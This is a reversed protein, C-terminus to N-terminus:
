KVEDEKAKQLYEALDDFGAKQALTHPYQGRVDPITLSLKAPGNLLWDCLAKHGGYAAKHIANHGQYNTYALDLGLTFLWKTTELHGALTAFHMASCGWKNIFLVDAGCSMLWECTEIHGGWAALQLPTTDDKAKAELAHSLTKVLYECVQTHGKRAAWHLATRGSKKDAIVHDAGCAVLHEVVSLAGGGAAHHLATSGFRDSTEIDKGSALLSKVESLNGSTCAALLPDIQRQPKTKVTQAAESRTPKLKKSTTLPYASRLKPLGSFVKAALDGVSKAALVLAVGDEIGSWGELLDEGHVRRLEREIAKSLLIVGISDLGPHLVTEVGVEEAMVEAVLRVIFQNFCQEHTKPPLEMTEFLPSKTHIKGNETLPMAPIRTFASPMMYHPLTAKLHARLTLRLEEEDAGVYFLVLHGTAGSGRVFCIAQNVGEVQSAVESIEGLEVRNGRVKVQDDRRHLFYVAGDSRVVVDGSRFVGGFPTDCCGGERSEGLYGEAVNVGSLLLEETNHEIPEFDFSNGKLPRGLPIGYRPHIINQSVKQLSVWITAETPGYLNYLAPPIPKDHSPTGETIIDGGCLQKALNGPFTEGGVLRLQPYNRQQPVWGALIMMEWTAPTAQMGHPKFRAIDEAVSFGLKPMHLVVQMGCLLPLAFELVSIDFHEPSVALFRGGVGGLGMEAVVADITNLVSSEKVLVGKPTGTSGSTYSIYAFRLGGELVRPVCPIAEVVLGPTIIAAAGSSTLLRELKQQPTSRPIVVAVHGAKWVGLLAALLSPTRDLHVAVVCQRKEADCPAVKVVGEAVDACQQLLSGYTLSLEKDRCLVAVESVDTHSEILAFREALQFPPASPSPSSPRM